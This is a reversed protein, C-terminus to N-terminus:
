MFQDLIDRLLFRIGHQLPERAILFFVHFSRALASGNTYDVLGIAVRSQARKKVRQLMRESTVKPTSFFIHICFLMVTHIVRTM